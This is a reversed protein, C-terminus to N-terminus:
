NRASLDNAVKFWGAMYHLTDGSRISCVTKEEEVTRMKEREQPLIVALFSHFIIVSLKSLPIMLEDEKLDM